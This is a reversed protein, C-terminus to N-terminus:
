MEGVDKKVDEFFHKSLKTAYALLYTKNVQKPKYVHVYDGGVSIYHGNFEFGKMKPEENELSENIDVNGLLRQLESYLRLQELSTLSLEKRNTSCRLLDINTYFHHSIADDSVITKELDQWSGLLHFVFFTENKNNATLPVNEAYHKRLQRGTLKEYYQIIGYNSIGTNEEGFIAKTQHIAIYELPFRKEDIDKAPWYYIRHQKCFNYHELNKCLGVLVNRKTLDSKQLRESVGAPLSAREFASEASEQIINRLFAEVMETNGPLFPLGGINVTNISTYFPHNKYAKNYDSYPFLVYAGFMERIYSPNDGAEGSKVLIADRYRHMTNITDEVPGPGHYTQAYKSNPDTGDIRYKADFIYSFKDKGGNKIISVVNDPKQPIVMGIQETNNQDTNGKEKRMYVPNYVLAVEEGNCLDRYIIKSGTVGKKLDVTLGNDTYRFLSGEKSPYKLSGDAKKIESVLRNLKIFCWYEYLLATDKMPIRFVDGSLQLGMNLKMYNQYLERYGPAMAFVLSLSRKANWKSVNRLFSNDIKQKLLEVMTSINKVLVSDITEKSGYKNYKQGQYKEKLNDLRQITAELIHKVFQNELTDFSLQKKTTEVKEFRIQGSPLRKGMSSHHNLWQLTNSDVQKVKHAAVMERYLQLEFHGKGIIMDVSHIISDYLRRVISFFETETNGWQNNVNAYQWTKRLFDFALNYLEETVDQLMVLYDKQYDIKSPLIELTLIIETKGNVRIEFESYGIENGFNINGVLVARKDKELKEVDKIVNRILKNEHWIEVRDQPQQKQYSLIFQYTRQEYFLPINDQFFRLKGGKGYGAYEFANEGDFLQVTFERKETFLISVPNTKGSQILGSYPHSPKGLIVLTLHDESIISLLEQELDGKNESGIPQM